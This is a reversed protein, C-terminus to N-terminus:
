TILQGRIIGNICHIEARSYDPRTPRPAPIHGIPRSQQQYTTQRQQQQQQQQQQHVTQQNYNYSPPARTAPPPRVEPVEPLVQQTPPSYRISPPGKEVYVPRAPAPRYEPLETILPPPPPSRTAPPGKEFHPPRTAPLYRQETEQQVLEESDGRDSAVSSTIVCNSTTSGCLTAGKNRSGQQQVYQTGRSTGAKQGGTTRIVTVNCTRASGVGCGVPRAGSTWNYVRRQYYYTHGPGLSGKRTINVGEPIGQLLSEIESEGPVAPLAGSSSQSQSSWSTHSSWSSEHGQGKAPITRWRTRSQSGETSQEQDVTQQNAGELGTDILETETLDDYDSDLLQQGIELQGAQQQQQQSSSYSSQSAYSSGSSYGSSYGGNSNGQCGSPGGISCGGSYHRSRTRRTAPYTSEVINAWGLCVLLLICLRVDM